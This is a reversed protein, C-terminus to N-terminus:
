AIFPLYDEGKVIANRLNRSQRMIHNKYSSKTGTRKDTVSEEMRESFARLFAYKGSPKMIVGYGDKVFDGLTLIGQNIIGIVLRDVIPSRFEEMLDLAASPRGRYEPHLWGVCPDLGSTLVATTVSSLLLTYGFSLLANVPDKPPRRNRGRWKWSPSILLEFEHFYIAGIKGEIGRLRAIDDVSSIENLLADIEEIAEAIKPKDRGSRYFGRKLTARQNVTKGAVFGAAIAVARKPEFASKYQESKIKHSKCLGSTLSGMYRGSSSIFHLPIDLYLLLQMAPTTINGQGIVIVDEVQALPVTENEEQRDPKWLLADGKRKLIGDERTLYLSPM